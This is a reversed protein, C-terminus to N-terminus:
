PAGDKGGDVVPLEPAAMLQAQVVAAQPGPCAWGCHVLPKGQVIASPREAPKAPRFLPVASKAAEPPAAPVAASPTAPASAAALAAALLAEEGSCASVLTSGAVPIASEYPCLATFGAEIATAAIPSLKGDICAALALGGVTGAVAVTLPGPMHEAAAMARRVAHGVWRRARRSVVLVLAVLAAVFLLSFAEITM